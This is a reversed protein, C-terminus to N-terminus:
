GDIRFGQQLSSGRLELRPHPHPTSPLPADWARDGEAPVHLRLGTETEITTLPAHPPARFRDYRPQVALHYGALVLTGALVGTTVGRVLTARAEERRPLGLAVALTATWAAALAPLAGLFRPDPATWFWFAAGAVIPIWPLGHLAPARAPPHAGDRRFWAWLLALAAAVLLLLVPRVEDSQVLRVAWPGLWDRDSIGGEWPPRGPFRAWSRISLLQAEVASRPIRWDVDLAGLTGPYAPYGSTVIGRAVWPIGLLLVPLLLATWRERWSHLRRRRDPVLAVALACAAFAVGTLKFTIALAALMGLRVLAGQDGERHKLASLHDVLYLFIITALALLALDPTPSAVDRGVQLHMAVPPLLLLRLVDPLPPRATAALVRPAASALQFLLVLLLLGNLLHLGAGRPLAADLLAVLLFYSQNFALRGHLNGLGPVIAYEQIWRVAQLHYLGTDYNIPPGLAQSAAWVALAAMVVAVPWRSGGVRSPGARARLSRLLGTVGLVGVALAAWGDVPLVFHWLQLLAVVAAVGMWFAPFWRSERSGAPTPGLAALVHWGAGAILAFAAVWALLVVAVAAAWAYLPWIMELWAVEGTVAAAVNGSRLM